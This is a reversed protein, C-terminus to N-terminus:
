CFCRTLRCAQPFCCVATIQLIVEWPQIVPSVVIHEMLSLASGDLSFHSGGTGRYRGIVEATFISQSFSVCKSRKSANLHFTKSKVFPDFAQCPAVHTLIRTRICTNPTPLGGGGGSGLSAPKPESGSSSIRYLTMETGLFSQMQAWHAECLLSLISYPCRWIM